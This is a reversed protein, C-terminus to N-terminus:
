GNAKQHCEACKVPTAKGATNQKKHCDICLGSSASTNHFAGQLNTTVPPTAPKTHCDTCAEQASKLPKEPKSAHHCTDCKGGVKVHAPHDFKVAGMPAGKLVIPGQPVSQAVAIGAIMIVIFLGLLVALLHKVKVVGGLIAITCSALLASAALM